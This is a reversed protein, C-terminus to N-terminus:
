NSKVLYDVKSSSGYSSVFHRALVTAIGPSLTDPTVKTFVHAISTKHTVFNQKGNEIDFNVGDMGEDQRAIMTVNAMDEDIFLPSLGSSASIMVDQHIIFWWLRRRTEAESFEFRDIDRHLGMSLAVRFSTTIHAPPDAFDEERLLQMEAIIYSALSNLSPRRPFGVLSASKMTAFYLDDAMSTSNKISINELQTSSMTLIGAFMMACLLCVFDPRERLFPGININHDGNQQFDRWFAEHNKTFSPIHLIPILPFVNTFFASCLIHCTAKSPLM